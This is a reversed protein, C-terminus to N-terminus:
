SASRAGMDETSPVPVAEESMQYQSLRVEPRHGRMYEVFERNEMHYLGHIAKLCPWGQAMIRAHEVTLRACSELETSALDLIELQEFRSPLLLGDGVQFLRCGISGAFSLNKLQSLMSLQLCLAAQAEVATYTANNKPACDPTIKLDELDACVWRQQDFLEPNCDLSMSEHGTCWFTHLNSCCRLVSHPLSTTSWGEFDTAVSCRKFALRKLTSRRERIANFVASTVIYDQLTLDELYLMLVILSSVSRTQSPGKKGSILDLKRLAHFSPKLIFTRDIESPHQIFALVRLQPLQGAFEVQDGLTIGSVRCLGLVQIPPMKFAGASLVPTTTALVGQSPQQFLAGQLKGTGPDEFSVHSLWMQRLAPCNSFLVQLFQHEVRCHRLEVSQLNPWRPQMTWLRAGAGISGPTALTQWHYTIPGEPEHEDELFLRELHRSREVVEIIRNPREQTTLYQTSVKFARREDWYGLKPPPRYHYVIVRTNDCLWGMLIFSLYSVCDLHTRRWRHLGPAADVRRVLRDILGLYEAELRYDPHLQINPASRFRYLRRLIADCDSLIHWWVFPAISAYWQRSVLSCVCHDKLPLFTGITELILPIDLPCLRPRAFASM